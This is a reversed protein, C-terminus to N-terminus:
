LYAIHVGYNQGKGEVIGETKQDVINPYFQKELPALEDLVTKGAITMAGAIKDDLSVRIPLINQDSQVNIGLNSNVSVAESAVEAMKEQAAMPGSSKLQSLRFEGPGFTKSYKGAVASGLKPYYSVACLYDDPNNIGASQTWDFASSLYIPISPGQINKITDTCKIEDVSVIDFEYPQNGSPTSTASGSAPSYNIQIKKHRKALYNIMEISNQGIEGTKIKELDKDDVFSLFGSSQLSEISSVTQKNTDSTTDFSLFKGVAAIILIFPLIMLIALFICSNGVVKWKNEKWFKALRDRVEGLVDPDVLGATAGRVTKRFEESAKKAKEAAEMAAVAATSIGATAVGGATAAGAKVALEAGKKVGQDVIKKGAEKIPKTATEVLKNKADDITDRAKNVTKGVTSNDVANGVAKSMRGGSLADATGTVDNGALANSADGGLSSGGRKRPPTSPSDEQEEEPDLTEEDAM